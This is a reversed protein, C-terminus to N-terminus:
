NLSDIKLQFWKDVWASRYVKMEFFSRSGYLEEM